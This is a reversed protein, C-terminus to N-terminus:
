HLRDELYQPSYLSRCNSVSLRHICTYFIVAVGQPVSIYNHKLVFTPCGYCLRYVSPAILQITLTPFGSGVLSNRKQTGVLGARPGVWGEKFSDKKGPIFHDRISKIVGGGFRAGFKPIFLAM